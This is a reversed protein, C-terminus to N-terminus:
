NNNDTVSIEFMPSQSKSWFIQKDIMHNILCNALDAETLKNKKTKAIGSIESVFETLLRMLLNSTELEESKTTVLWCSINEDAAMIIQREAVKM